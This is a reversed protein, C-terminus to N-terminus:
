TAPNRCGQGGSRHQSKGFVGYRGACRARLHTRGSSGSPTTMTSFTLGDIPLALAKANFLSVGLTSIIGTAGPVSALADGSLAAIPVPSDSYMLGAFWALSSGMGGANSEVVYTKPFVYMGAWTRGEQDLCPRQTTVMVPTTSGAIVGVQGHTTIGLGLLGLQTDAGGAAVPIGKVLGLAEAAKETLTGLKTGPAVIKPFIAKPLGLM